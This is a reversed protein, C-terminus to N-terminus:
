KRTTSTGVNCLVVNCLVVNYLMANYLVVKWRVSNQTMEEKSFYQASDHARTDQGSDRVQATGQLLITEVAARTIDSVTPVQTPM